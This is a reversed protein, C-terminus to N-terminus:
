DRNTASAFRISCIVPAVAKSLIQGGSPPCSSPIRKRDLDVHHRLLADVVVFDVGHHGEARSCPKMRRKISGHRDAAGAAVCV